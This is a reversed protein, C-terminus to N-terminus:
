RIKELLSFAKPLIEYNKEWKPNGVAVLHLQETAPSIYDVQNQFFADDVYNHLVYYKGTIGIEKDYDEIVQQSVGIMVQRKNYTHKDLWRLWAGRRNFNFAGESLIQHVTFVFPIRKQKALRGLITSWYLHSAILVPRHKKIIRRLKLVAQPLKYISTFDLSYRYACGIENEDFESVNTLTVLVINYHRGLDKLLGVLLTEAGGKALDNIVQIMTPKENVVKNM